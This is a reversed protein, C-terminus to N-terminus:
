DGVPEGVAGRLPHEELAVALGIGVIALVTVVLFVLALSESLAGRTAGLLERPVQAGGGGQLLREVDVREAATGLREVLGASVRNALLAGLGAVALSGGMSRAFQIGATPVGFETAAV